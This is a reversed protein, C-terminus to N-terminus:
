LSFLIHIYMINRILGNRDDYDDDDNLDVDGEAKGTVGKKQWSRRVRM